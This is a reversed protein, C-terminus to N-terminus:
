GHDREDGTCYDTAAYTLYGILCWFLLQTAISNAAFASALHAPIGSTTNQASPAGIIHPIALMVGGATPALYKPKTAILWLGTATLLVTAIWWFQRAQLPASAMGPLEPPQGIAPALSLALFGCLGWILWNTKTIVPGALFSAGILLASYGVGLLMATLVTFFSRELRSRPAWAAAADHAHPSTAHEIVEAELILPVIRWEQLLGFALGSLLGALIAALFYRTLPM